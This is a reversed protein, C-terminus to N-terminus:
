VMRPVPSRGCRSMAGSLPKSVAQAKACQRRRSRRLSFRSETLRCAFPVGLPDKKWASDCRQRWPPAPFTEPASCPRSRARRQTPPRTGPLKAIHFRHRPSAVSALKCQPSLAPRRPEAPAL